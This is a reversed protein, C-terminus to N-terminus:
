CDALAPWEFLAILRQRPQLFELVGPSGPQAVTPYFLFDAKVKVFSNLLSLIRLLGRYIM